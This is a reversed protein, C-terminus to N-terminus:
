HSAWEGFYGNRYNGGDNSYSPGNRLYDAPAYLPPPGIGGGVRFEEFVDAQPNANGFSSNSLKRRPSPTPPQTGAYLASVVAPPQSPAVTTVVASPVPQPQHPHHHHHQQQQQQKLSSRLKSQGALPPPLAAVVSGAGSQQYGLSLAHQEFPLSAPRTVAATAYKSKTMPLPSHILRNLLKPSGAYLEQKTPPPVQDLERERECEREYEANLNLNNYDYCLLEEHELLVNSNNSVTSPTRRHGAASVGMQPVRPPPTRTQSVPCPVTVPLPVVPPAEYQYDYYDPLRHNYDYSYDPYSKCDREYSYNL